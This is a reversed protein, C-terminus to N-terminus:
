CMGFHSCEATVSKYKSRQIISNTGNPRHTAQTSEAYIAWTARMDGFPRYNSLRYAAMTNANLVFVEYKNFNVTSTIKLDVM